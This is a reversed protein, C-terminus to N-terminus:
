ATTLKNFEDAPIFFGDIEESSFWEKVTLPKRSFFLKFVSPSILIYCNWWFRKTEKPIEQNSFIARDFALDCKNKFIQVKIIRKYIAGAIAVALVTAVAILIMETLKNM